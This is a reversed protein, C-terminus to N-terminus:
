IVSEEDGNKLIEVLQKYAREVKLASVARAAEVRVNADSDGMMSSVLLGANEGGIKVLSRVTERRVGAHENALTATLPEIASQEGM